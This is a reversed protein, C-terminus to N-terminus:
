PTGRGLDDSRDSLVSRLREIARHQLQKVAGESRGLARATDAVSLDGAFRLYLVEQQDQTLETFVPEITSAFGADLAELEASASHAEGGSAAGVWEINAPDVLELRPRAARRRAEDRLLNVAITMAYAKLDDMGGSFRHISRALRLFVEGLLNEADSRARMRLYGLLPPRLFEYIEEWAREDGVQAAEVVRRDAQSMSGDYIPRTAM